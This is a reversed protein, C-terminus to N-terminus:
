ASLRVSGFESPNAADAVAHGILTNGSAATTAQKTTNNWYIAAGETWAQASTKPLRWVGTVQAEFQEGQAANGLAICFLAGILYGNGSVVGDTPATLTLVQGPQIFNKAM